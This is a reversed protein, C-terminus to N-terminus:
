QNQAGPTASETKPNPIQIKPNTSQTNPKPNQNDLQNYIMISRYGFLNALSDKIHATDSARCTIAMFVYFGASDRPMVSAISGNMKINRVRTDAREKTPYDGIIMKYTMQITDAGAPLAAGTNEKRMASSDVAPVPQTEQPSVPTHQAKNNAMYYYIGYGGGGLILLLVVVLVVMSWNISDAKQPEPYSPKHLPKSVQEELRKSNRITPIGAPTFRFNNDTVFKVKSEKEVFNGIHPIPIENGNAMDKRAQISYERLTNAAKSISIQENTAIFNALNDDISGGPTVVVEYSPALLANGDHTAPRKVLELNGLGHIYCYHNKLLFLGIYKAIDM